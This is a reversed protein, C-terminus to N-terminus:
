NTQGPRGNKICMVFYIVVYMYEHKFNLSFVISLKTNTTIVHLSCWAAEYQM